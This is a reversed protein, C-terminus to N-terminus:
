AKQESGLGWQREQKKEQPPMAELGADKTCVGGQRSKSYEKGYKKGQNAKANYDPQDQLLRWAHQQAARGQFHHDHCNQARWKWKAQM